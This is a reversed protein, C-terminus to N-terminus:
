AIVRKKSTVCVPELATACQYVRCQCKCAAVIDEWAVIQLVTHPENYLVVCPGDILTIGQVIDM